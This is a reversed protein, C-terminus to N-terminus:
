HRMLCHHVVHGSAHHDDRIHHKPWEPQKMVDTVPSGRRVGTSGGDGMSPGIDLDGPRDEPTSVRVALAFGTCFAAIADHAWVSRLESQRHVGNPTTSRDCTRFISSSAPGRESRITRRPVPDTTIQRRTCITGSDARFIFGAFIASTVDV